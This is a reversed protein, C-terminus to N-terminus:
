DLEERQWSDEDEPEVERFLEETDSIVKEMDENSLTNMDMEMKHRQLAQFLEKDSLDFNNCDTALSYHKSIEVDPFDRKLDRLIKIVKESYDVHNKM